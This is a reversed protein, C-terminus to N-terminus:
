QILGTTSGSILKAEPHGMKAAVKIWQRYADGNGSSRYHMALNWAAAGEGNAVAKTYWFVARVPDPPCIEDDLINGLMLQALAHDRISAFELAAIAGILDGQEHLAYGDEWATESDKWCREEM